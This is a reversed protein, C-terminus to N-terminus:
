RRPPPQVAFQGMTPHKQKARALHQGFGNYIEGLRILWALGQFSLAGHAAEGPGAKATQIQTSHQGPWAETNCETKPEQGVAYRVVPKSSLGTVAVLIPISLVSVQVMSLRIEAKKSSQTKRLFRVSAALVQIGWEEEAGPFPFRQIEVGRRLM